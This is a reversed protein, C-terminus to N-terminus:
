NGKTMLKLLCKNEHRCKCLLESRKNLLKRQRPYTIIILKEHLCLFCKKSINLYPTAGRVVSWKLKPTLDLLEKLHWAYSSLPKEHSYRTYKYKCINICQIYVIYMYIYIYIYIMKFYIYIYISM